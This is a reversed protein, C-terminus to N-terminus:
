YILLFLHPPTPDLFLLIVLFSPSTAISTAGSFFSAGEFLVFQIWWGVLDLSDDVVVCSSECSSALCTPGPFPMKSSNVVSPVFTRGLDSVRLGPLVKRM